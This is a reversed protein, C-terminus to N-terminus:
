IRGLMIVGKQAIDLARIMFPEITAYPPNM